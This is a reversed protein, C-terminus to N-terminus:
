QVQGTGVHVEDHADVHGLEGRRWLDGHCEGLRAARLGFNLLEEIHEDGVREAVQCASITTDPRVSGPWGFLSGLFRSTAARPENPPSVKM